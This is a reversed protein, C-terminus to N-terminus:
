DQLFSSASLKVINRVQIEMDEHRWGNVLLRSVVSRLPVYVEIEVQERVAERVLHNWNSDNEVIEQRIIEYEQHRAILKLDIQCGELVLDVLEELVVQIQELEEMSRAKLKQRGQAELAEIEHLKPARALATDVFNDVIEQMTDLQFLRWAYRQLSRKLLGRGNSSYLDRLPTSPHNVGYSNSESVGAETGLFSQVHIAIEAVNPDIVTSSYMLRCLARLFNELQRNNAQQVKEDRSKTLWSSKAKPIQMGKLNREQPILASTAAMLDNFDDLYRLPAYWEKGSEVDYVWITYATRNDDTAFSNVIRASLAKRIGDMMDLDRFMHHNPDFNKRFLYPTSPTTLTTTSEWQRARETYHHITNSTALVEKKSQILQRKELIKAFPHISDHSAEQQQERVYNMDEQNTADLLSGSHSNATRQVHFAIPSPALQIVQVIQKMRTTTYHNYESNLPFWTAFAKGNIGILEDNRGIGATASPNHPTSKLSCVHVNGNPLEELTMGLGGMDPDRHVVATFYYVEDSRQEELSLSFRHEQLVRDEMDSLQSSKTPSLPSSPTVDEDDLCNGRSNYSPSDEHCKSLRAAHIRRLSDISEDPFIERLLSISQVDADVESDNPNLFSSSSSSSSSLSDDMDFFFQAFATDRGDNM